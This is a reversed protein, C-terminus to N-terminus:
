AEVGIQRMMEGGAGFHDFFGAAELDAIYKTRSAMNQGFLMHRLHHQQESTFEGLGYLDEIYIRGGSKLAKACQAADLRGSCLIEGESGYGIEFM